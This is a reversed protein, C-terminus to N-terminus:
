IDYEEWDELDPVFGLERNFKECMRAQYALDARIEADTWEHADIPREMAM